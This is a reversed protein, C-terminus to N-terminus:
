RGEKQADHLRELIRQKAAVSKRVASNRGNNINVVTMAAMTKSRAGLIMGLRETAKEGADFDRPGRGLAENIHGIACRNGREDVLACVCWNDLPSFFAIFDAATKLTPKSM